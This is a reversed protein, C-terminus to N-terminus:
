ESETKEIKDKSSESENIDTKKAVSIDAKKDISKNSNSSDVISKPSKSSEKKQSKETSELNKLKTKSTPSSDNSIFKEKDVFEILSMPAKDGTRFGFKYIRTYGGNRSKINPGIVTFLKKIAGDNNGLISYALRRNPLSDVKSITLLKEIFPRLEKSKPLTTKIRNHVILSISLNRFLAKRHSSNRGLKRTKNRHNM